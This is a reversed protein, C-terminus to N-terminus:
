SVFFDCTPGHGLIDCHTWKGNSSLLLRVCLRPLQVSSPALFLRRAGKLCRAFSVCQERHGGRNALLPVTCLFLAHMKFQGSDKLPAFPVMFNVHGGNTLLVLPSAAPMQLILSYDTDYCSVVIPLSLYNLFVSDCLYSVKLQCIGGCLQVGLSVFLHWM